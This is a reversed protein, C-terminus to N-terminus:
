RPKRPVFWNIYSKSSFNRVLSDVARQLRLIERDESKQKEELICARDAKRKEEMEASRRCTEEMKLQFGRGIESTDLGIDGLIDDLNLPNLLLAVDDNRPFSAM